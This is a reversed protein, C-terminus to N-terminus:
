SRPKRLHSCDMVSVMILGLVDEVHILRPMPDTGFLRSSTQDDFFRPLPLPLPLLSSFSEQLGESGEVTLDCMVESTDATSVTFALFVTKSFSFWPTLSALSALFLFLAPIVTPFRPVCTKLVSSQRSLTRTASATVVALFVFPFSLATGTPIWCVVQHHGCRGPAKLSHGAHDLCSRLHINISIYSTDWLPPHNRVLPNVNRM